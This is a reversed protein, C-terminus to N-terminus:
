KRLLEFAGRRRSRELDSVALANFAGFIVFGLGVLIDQIPPAM